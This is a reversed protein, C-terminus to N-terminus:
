VQAANAFEPFRQVAHGYLVHAVCDYLTLAELKMLVEVPWGSLDVGREALIRLVKTQMLAAAEPGMADGHKFDNPKGNPRDRTEKTSYLAVSYRVIPIWEIEVEFRSVRGYRLTWDRDLNHINTALAM